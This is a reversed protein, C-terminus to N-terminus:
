SGDGQKPVDPSPIIIFGKEKLWNILVEDANDAIDINGFMDREYFCDQAMDRIAEGIRAKEHETFESM